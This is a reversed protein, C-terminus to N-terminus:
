DKIWKLFWFATDNAIFYRMGGTGMRGIGEDKLLGRSVLHACAMRLAAPSAGTITERLKMAHFTDAKLEEESSDLEAVRLGEFPKGCVPAQVISGLVELDFDTLETLLRAAAESEDWKTPDSIQRALINAFRQRKEVSRTKVVQELTYHVLDYLGENDSVNLPPSHPLARIKKDLENLLHEAREMKWKQGSNSLLTDLPGGIYPIAQIIARIVTLDGYRSSIKALKKSESDESM